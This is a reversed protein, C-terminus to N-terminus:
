VVKKPTTFVFDKLYFPEMYAVDAFAQNEFAQYALSSMFRASNYIKDSFLAQPNKEFFPMCKAAGDGIFVLTQAKFEEIFSYEDVIKANVEQCVNLSPDYLATFVEMRRADIMPCILGEYNPHLQMYGAAMMKLTPVAILPLDLAYCLGKATSVGIRLGTYSGPGQSVAVAGLEKYALSAEQMAEEIFLTLQSAHINPAQVEKLVRTIGSTSIAVSCVSTSTEIQLLHAM